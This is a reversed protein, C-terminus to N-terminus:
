RFQLICEPRVGRLENCSGHYCVCVVLPCVGGVLVDVTEALIETTTKKYGQGDTFERVRIRGVVLVPTGKKLLELDCVGFGQWVCVNHWTTEKDWTGDSRKYDFDTAVSFNAVSREGVKNIRADNGLKGKVYIRNECKM